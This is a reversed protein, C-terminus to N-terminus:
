FEKVFSGRTEGCGAQGVHAEEAVAQSLSVDPSLWFLLM